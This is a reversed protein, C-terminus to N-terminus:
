KVTVPAAAVFLPVVRWEGMGSGPDGVFTRYYATQVLAPRGNSAMGPVVRVEYYFRGGVSLLQEIAAKGATMTKAYCTNDLMIKAIDFAFFALTGATSLVEAAVETAVASAGETAVNQGFTASKGIGFVKLWVDRDSAKAITAIKAIHPGKGTATLCKQYNAGTMEIEQVKFSYFHEGPKMKATYTCPGSAQASKFGPNAAYVYPDYILAASIPKLPTCPVRQQAGAVHTLTSALLVAAVSRIKMLSRGEFYSLKGAQYVAV